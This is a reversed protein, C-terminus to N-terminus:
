IGQQAELFLDALESVFADLPSPENGAANSSEVAGGLSTQRELSPPALALAPSAAAAAAAPLLPPDGAKREM